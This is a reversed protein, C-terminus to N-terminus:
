QEAKDSVGDTLWLWSRREWCDLVHQPMLPLDKAVRGSGRCSLNKDGAGAVAGAVKESYRPKGAM